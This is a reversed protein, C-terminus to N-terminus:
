LQARKRSRAKFHSRKWGAENNRVSHNLLGPRGQASFSLPVYIYIYIYIHILVALCAYAIGVPSLCRDTQSICSTKFERPGPDPCGPPRPSPAGGSRRAPARRTGPRSASNFTIILLIRPILLIIITRRRRIIITIIPLFCCLHRWLAQAFVCRRFIMRRIQLSRQLM